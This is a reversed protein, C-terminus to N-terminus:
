CRGARNGACESAESARIASYDMFLAIPIAFAIHKLSNKHNKIGISEISIKLIIMFLM